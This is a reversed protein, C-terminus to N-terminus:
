YSKHVVIEVSCFGDYGGSTVRILAVEVCYRKMEAFPVFSNQFFTSIFLRGKQATRPRPAPLQFWWTSAIWTSTFVTLPSANLMTESGDWLDTPRGMLISIDHYIILSLAIHLDRWRISTETTIRRAFKDSMDSIFASWSRSENTRNM